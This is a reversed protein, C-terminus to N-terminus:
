LRGLDEMDNRVDTKVNQDEAENSEEVKIKTEEEPSKGSSQKHQQIM